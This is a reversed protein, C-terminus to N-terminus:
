SGEWFELSVQHYPSARLWTCALCVVVATMQGVALVELCADLWAYHASLREGSTISVGEALHLDFWVVVVNMQGAAVVELQTDMEKPYPTGSPACFDFDALKAPATLLKHPLHHLLVTEPENSWRCAYLTCM